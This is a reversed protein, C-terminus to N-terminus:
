GVQEETVKEAKATKEEAEWKKLEAFVLDFDAFTLPQTLTKKLKRSAQHIMMAMRTPGGFVAGEDNHAGFQSAFMIAAHYKEHDAVRKTVEEVLSFLTYGEKYNDNAIITTALSLMAVRDKLDESPVAAKTTNSM